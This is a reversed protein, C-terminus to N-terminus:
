LFRSGVHFLIFGGVIASDWRVGGAAVRPQLLVNPNFTLRKDAAVFRRVLFALMGLLTLVSLVDAILNLLGILGASIEATSYGRFFGELLDNVNVLFYYSFGFFIFAHLLSLIPRARFITAQLGVRILAIVFRQVLNKRAPAPRGRRIIAYIGLFGYITVTTSAIVLLFFAILEPTTLM